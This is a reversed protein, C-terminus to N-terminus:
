RRRSRRFLVAGTVVLVVVACVATAVSVGTSALGDSTWVTPDVSDGPVLGAGLGAGASFRLDATGGLTQDTDTVSRALAGDVTIREGPQIEGLYVVSAVEGLPTQETLTLGDRALTLLPQELSEGSLSGVTSLLVSVAVDSSSTLTVSWSTSAGPAPMDLAIREPTAAISVVALPVPAPPKPTATLTGVAGSLSAAAVLALVLLFGTSLVLRRRGSREASATTRSTSPGAPVADEAVVAADTGRGAPSRVLEGVAIGGLAVVGLVARSSAQARGQELLSRCETCVMVHEDVRAQARRPAAGLVVRAVLGPDTGCSPPRARLFAAVYSERLAARARQAQTTVNSPSIGLRDAVERTSLRDVLTLWLVSQQPRTLGAFAARALGHDEALVLDDEPFVPQDLDEDAVPVLRGRRQATRSALNRVVAFLYARLNEIRALRGDELSLLTAFSESVVDDAENPALGLRRAYRELEPAVDPYLTTVAVRQSTTGISM